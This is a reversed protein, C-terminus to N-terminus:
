VRFAAKAPGQATVFLDHEEIALDGCTPLVATEYGLQLTGKPLSRTPLACCRPCPGM